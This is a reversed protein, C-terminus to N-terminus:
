HQRVRNKLHQVMVAAPLKTTRPHVKKPPPVPEPLRLATPVPEEVPAADPTLPRNITESHILFPQHHHWRPKPLKVRKGRYYGTKEPAFGTYYGSLKTLNLSFKNALRATGFFAATALLLQMLTGQFSSLTYVLVAAIAGAIIQTSNYPGGWIRWNGIRGVYLPVKTRYFRTVMLEQQDSM